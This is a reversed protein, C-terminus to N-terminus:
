LEAIGQALGFAVFGIVPNLSCLDRDSAAVAVAQRGLSLPFVRAPSVIRATVAKVPALLFQAAVGPEALIRIAPGMGDALGPSVCEAKMVHMSVDPFPNPVSVFGFIVGARWLNIRGPGLIPRSSNDAAIAPTTRGHATTRRRPCPERGIGPVVTDAQPDGSNRISHLFPLISRSFWIQLSPQHESSPTAEPGECRLPLRPSTDPGIEDRRLM